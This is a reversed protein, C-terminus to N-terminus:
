GQFEYQKATYKSTCRKMNLDLNRPKLDLIVASQRPAEIVAASHHSSMRVRECLAASLQLM